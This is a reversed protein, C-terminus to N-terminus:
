LDAGAPSIAIRAARPALTVVRVTEGPSTGTSVLWISTIASLTASRSTDPRPGRLRVVAAALERVISASHRGMPTGDGVVLGRPDDRDHDYPTGMVVGPM